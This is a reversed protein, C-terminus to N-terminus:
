HYVIFCDTALCHLFLFFVCVCVNHRLTELPQTLPQKLEPLPAHTTPPIGPFCPTKADPLGPSPKLIDAKVGSALTAMKGDFQLMFLSFLFYHDSDEERDNM